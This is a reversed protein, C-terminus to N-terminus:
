AIQPGRKPHICIANVMLDGTPPNLPVLRHRRTEYLKYGLKRLPKIVDEARAGLKALVPPNLEIQLTPLFRALSRSAGVLMRSEHGEIDVKVFDLQSIGHEAVFRDLTTLIAGKGGDRLTTAGSNGVRELIQATGERDSLAVGHVHINELRNIEVNRRLRVLTPPNPEFSHVNASPGLRHALTLSYYGINAGVDLITADRPVLRLIHYIEWRDYEGRWFIDRHAYDAPNLIWKLGGRVELSERDIDLRLLSRLANIVRPKGRHYPTRLSYFLVASTRLSDRETHKLM